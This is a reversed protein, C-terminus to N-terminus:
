DDGWGIGGGRVDAPSHGSGTRAAYLFCGSTKLPLKLAGRDGMKWRRDGAFGGEGWNKQAGL